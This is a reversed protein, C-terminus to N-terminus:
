ALVSLRSLGEDVSQPVPLMRPHVARARHRPGSPLRWLGRWIALPGGTMVREIDLPRLLRTAGHRLAGVVCSVDSTRVGQAEVALRLGKSVDPLSGSRRLRAAGIRRSFSGRGNPRPAAVLDRPTGPRHSTTPRPPSGTRPPSKDLPAHRARRRSGLNRRVPRHKSAVVLVALTFIGTEGFASEVWATAPAAVFGPRLDTGDAAAVPESRSQWIGPSRHGEEMEVLSIVAGVIFLFDLGSLLVAALTPSFFAIVAGLRPYMMATAAIIGAPLEPRHAKAERATQSARCHHRDVLRGGLLALVACKGQGSPLAPRPLDLLLAGLDLRSAGAARYSASCGFRCRM